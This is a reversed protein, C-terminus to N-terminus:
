EPRSIVVEELIWFANYQAVDAGRDAMGTACIFDKGIEVDLAGYWADYHDLNCDPVNEVLEYDRDESEINIYTPEFAYEVNDFEFRIETTQADFNGAHDFEHFPMPEEAYKRLQAPDPYSTEQKMTRVRNAVPFIIYLYERIDSRNM